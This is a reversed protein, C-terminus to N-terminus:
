HQLCPVLLWAHYYDDVENRCITIVDLSDNYGNEPPIYNGYYKIFKNAKSEYAVKNMLLIPILDAYKEHDLEKIREFPKVVEYNSVEQNFKASGILINNHVDAGICYFENTFFRTVDKEKEDKIKDKKNYKDLLKKCIDIDKLETTEGLAFKLLDHEQQVTLDQDKYHSGHSDELYSRGVTWARAQYLFADKLSAVAGQRKLTSMLSSVKTSYFTEKDARTRGREKTFFPSRYYYQTVKKDTETWVRCVPMGDSYCLVFQNILGSYEDTRHQYVRLGFKYCIEQVYMKLQPNAYLKEVLEPTNYGELILKEIM